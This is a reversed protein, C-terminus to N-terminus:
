AIRSEETGNLSFETRQAGFSAAASRAIGSQSHLLAPDWPRAHLHRRRARSIFALHIGAHVLM